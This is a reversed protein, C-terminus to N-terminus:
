TPTNPSKQTERIKQRRNLMEITESQTTVKESAVVTAKTPSYQVSQIQFPVGLASDFDYDFYSLDFYGDDWKTINTKIKPSQIQITDGVNLSEIDYGKSTYNSDIIEVSISRVPTSNKSLIRDTELEASATQTVNGNSIIEERNGFETVSTVNNYNKFLNVGATEGGHYDIFNIIDRTSYTYDGGVVSDGIMVLHDVTSLDTQSFYIKGDSGLNWFYLDPMFKVVEQIAEWFTMANITLTMSLGTLPITTTTYTITSPHLQAFQDLLDRLILAPDDDTYTFRRDGTDGNSITTTTIRAITKALLFTYSAFTLKVKVFDTIAFKYEQFLGSWVLDGTSASDIDSVYVEVKNFLLAFSTAMFNEVSQNLEFTVEGLGGNISSTFQLANMVPQSTLTSLRPDYTTTDVFRFEDM